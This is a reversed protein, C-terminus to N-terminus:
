LSGSTFLKDAISQRLRKNVDVAKNVDVKADV